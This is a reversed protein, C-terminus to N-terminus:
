GPSVISSLTVRSSSGWASYAAAVVVLFPEKVLGDDVPEIEVLVLDGFVFRALWEHGQVGDVGALGGRVPWVDGRGRFGVRVGFHGGGDGPVALRHWVM